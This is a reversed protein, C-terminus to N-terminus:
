TNQTHLKVYETPSIGEIKKFVKSFYLPDSFGVIEAVDKAHLNQILFEKSKKIRYQIIYENPSVVYVEKFIRRLYYPVYGFKESLIQNSFAFQYNTEIYDHIQQALLEKNEESTTQFYFNDEILLCLDQYVQEISFSNEMIELIESEINLYCINSPLNTCLYQFLTKVSRISM